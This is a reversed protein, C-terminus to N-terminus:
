SGDFSKNYDEKHILCKKKKNNMNIFIYITNLSKSIQSAFNTM